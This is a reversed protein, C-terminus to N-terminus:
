EIQEVASVSLRMRFATAEFDRAARFATGLVFGGVETM